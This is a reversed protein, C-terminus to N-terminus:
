QFGNKHMQVYELFLSIKNTHVLLLTTLIFPVVNVYSSFYPRVPIKECAWSPPHYFLQTESCSVVFTEFLFSLSGSSFHKKSCWIAM